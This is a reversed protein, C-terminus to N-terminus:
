PAVRPGYVYETKITWGVLLVNSRPTLTLANGTSSANDYRVAVQFPRIWQGDVLRWPGSFKPRKM